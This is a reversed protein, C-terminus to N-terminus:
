TLKLGLLKRSRGVAGEDVDGEIARQLAARAAEYPPLALLEILAMPTGYRYFWPLAVEVCYRALDTVCREYTAENRAHCALHMGRARTQDSDPGNLALHSTPDNLVRIGLHVRYNISLSPVGYSIGGRHLHIFEVIHERSRTWARKLTRSFGLAGIKSTLREFIAEEATRVLITDPHPSKAVM